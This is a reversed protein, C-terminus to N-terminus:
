CWGIHFQDNGLQKGLVLHGEWLHPYPSFLNQYHVEWPHLLSSPSLLPIQLTKIYLNHILWDQKERPNREWFEKQFREVNRPYLPYKYQLSFPIRLTLKEIVSHILLKAEYSSQTALGLRLIISHSSQVKQGTTSCSAYCNLKKAHKVWTCRRAAQLGCAVRSIWGRTEAKSCLKSCKNVSEWVSDKCSEWRFVHNSITLNCAFKARFLAM